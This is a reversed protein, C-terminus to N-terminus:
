KWLLITIGQIVLYGEFDSEVKIQEKHCDTKNMKEMWVHPENFNNNVPKSDWYFDVVYV